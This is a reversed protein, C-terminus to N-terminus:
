VPAPKPAPVGEIVGQVPGQFSNVVGCSIGRSNMWPSADKREKPAPGMDIFSIESGAPRVIFISTGISVPVVIPAPIVMVLPPKTICPLGCGYVEHIHFPPLVM